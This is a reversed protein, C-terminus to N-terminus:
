LRLAILAYKPEKTIEFKLNLDILVERRVKEKGTHIPEVPVIDLYCFQNLEDWLQLGVELNLDLLRSLLNLYKLVAVPLLM